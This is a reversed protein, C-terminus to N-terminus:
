LLYTLRRVQILLTIEFEEFIMDILKDLSPVPSRNETKRILKKLNYAMGALLM